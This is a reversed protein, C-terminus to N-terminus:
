LLFNDRARQIAETTTQALLRRRASKLRMKLASESIGLRAAAETHRLGSGILRLAEAQPGTLREGPRTMDHLEQLLQVAKGAEDDTYERDSRALRAVSRSALPGCAVVLGFRLGHGAAAPIVQDPDPLALESWRAFYQVSYGAAILPDRLAFGNEHYFDVWHRPFEDHQVLAVGARIHMAVAYGVPAMRALRKLESYVFRQSNM